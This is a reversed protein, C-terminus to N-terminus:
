YTGKRLFCRCQDVSCWNSKLQYLSCIVGIMCIGFWMVTESSILKFNCQVLFYVSTSFLWYSDIKLIAFQIKCDVGNVRVTKRKGESNSNGPNNLNLDFSPMDNWVIARCQNQFIVQVVEPRLELVYALIARERSSPYSCRQFEEELVRKQLSSFATRPNRNQAQVKGTVFLEQDM